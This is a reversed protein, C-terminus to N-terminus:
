ENIHVFINYVTIANKGCIYACELCYLYNETQEHECIHYPVFDAVKHEQLLEKYNMYCEDFKEKQCKVYSVLFTIPVGMPNYNDLLKKLHKIFYKKQSDFFGYMILAEFIAFPIEATKMIEFDIEGIHEKSESEGRLTQDLVDYGKNRLLDRIYTNYNNEGKKLIKMSGQLVKCVSCVDKLLEEKNLHKRTNTRIYTDVIQNVRNNEMEEYIKNLFPKVQYYREKTSRSMLDVYYELDWLVLEGQEIKDICEEIFPDISEIETYDFVDDWFLGDIDELGYEILLQPHNEDDSSKIEGRKEFEYGFEKYIKKVLKEDMPPFYINCLDEEGSKKADEYLMQFDEVIRILVYKYILKLDKRIYDSRLIDCIDNVVQLCKETGNDEIFTRPFCIRLYEYDWGTDDGLEKYMRVLSLIRKNIWVLIESNLDPNETYQGARDTSIM